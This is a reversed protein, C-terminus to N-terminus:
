IREINYPDDYCNFSNITIHASTGVNDSHNNNSSTDDLGQPSYHEQQHQKVEQQNRM